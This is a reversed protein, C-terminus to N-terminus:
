LAGSRKEAYVALIEAAVDELTKGTTDIRIDADAYFPERETMIREIRAELAEDGKLLPRDDALALRGALVPVTATLNVVLGGAHLLRRNAERIVVGGGTSLIIGHQGVLTALLATERERFAAEGEEAFIQNISKGAQEVLLADLDQFRYGLRAALLQGVSTKGSGMPGTLIISEPM